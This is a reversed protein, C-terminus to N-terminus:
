LMSVQEKKRYFSVMGTGSRLVKIGASKRICSIIISKIVSLPPVIIVSDSILFAAQFVAYKKEVPFVRGTGKTESLKFLQFSGDLFIFGKEPM